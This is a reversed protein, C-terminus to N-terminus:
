DAHFAPHVRPATLLSRRFGRRWGTDSEGRCWHEGGLIFWIVASLAHIDTWPGVLPNSEGPKSLLQEPEGYTLTMAAATAAIGDVRAIGCDALKPTEDDIPGTVLVNDPKLDRHLIGEAHLATVGEIIGRLLRLARNPDIGEGAARNVRQTLTVGELGGDIFELAMWPLRRIEVDTQDSSRRSSSGSGSGVEVDAHGCGYYGVVFETPPKREMMRGLAVTERV